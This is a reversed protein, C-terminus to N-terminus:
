TRVRRRRLVALAAIGAVILVLPVPLAPTTAHGAMATDPLPYRHPYQASLAAALVKGIEFMHAYADAVKASADAYDGAHYADVQALLAETHHGIMAAVADSGLHPNADAMFRGFRAAYAALENRRDTRGAEDGNRVADIYAVYARIHDNWLSEFARAAEVGYISEIAAALDSSNGVMAQRAAEFAPGGAVGARMAAVSLVLHEGLLRDLALWLTVSPSFALRGGAFRAPFQDIIARALVDGVNFMHGYAERETAFATAYDMDLFTRLQDTHLHLAEALAQPALQPNADLLFRGLAARNETMAGAAHELGNADRARSAAAYDALHQIHERWLTGFRQAAADGYVSGIATELGVTNREVASSAAAQDPAGTAVARMAEVSLFVHESLLRSLAVRLESAPSGLEPTAGAAAAPSWLVTLAVAAVLAPRIAM